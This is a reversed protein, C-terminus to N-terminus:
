SGGIKQFGQLLDVEGIDDQGELDDDFDPYGARPIDIIGTCISSQGFAKLPGPKVLSNGKTNSEPLNLAAGTVDSLVSDGNLAHAHRPKKVTRKEPSLQSHARKAPTFRKSPSSNKFPSLRKSPSDSKGPSGAISPCQPLPGDPFLNFNEDFIYVEDRDFLDQGWPLEDPLVAMGRDPSPVLERMRNRHNRLNTNPSASLPRKPSVKFTSAPTLPPLMLTSDLCRLPSSSGLRPSPQKFITRHKTPSGHNPNRSRAIRAIEEEARGTKLSARDVEAEPGAVTSPMNSRMVSSDLSSFYGSDNMAVVNHKRPQRSSSPVIQSTSPPTARHVEAQNPVPPSSDLARPSSPQARSCPLRHHLFEFAEDEQAAPDSAPITADSSPEIDNFVARSGPAREQTVDLNPEDVKSRQGERISKGLSSSSGNGVSTRRRLPRDKLFQAEMGPEIAWYNGKGPDDKPREQKVFAKNLSLNHRISNQWGSDSVRYYSFTDSIWKYIQALTLRRNPARLISMGILTAYSYPPKLGDDEVAPMKEPEPVEIIPQHSRSTKRFGQERLLAADILPTKPQRPYSHGLDPFEAFRDSQLGSVSKSEHMATKTSPFTTFLGQQPRPVSPAEINRFVSRKPPSDTVFHAPHPRPISVRNLGPHFITRSPVYSTGRGKRPSPVRPRQPPEFVLGGMLANFQAPQSYISPTMQLGLSSYGRSSYPRPMWQHMLDTPYIENQFVNASHGRRTSSM